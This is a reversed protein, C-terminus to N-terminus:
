SSWDPTTWVPASAPAVVCRLNRRGVLQSETSETSEAVFNSIRTGNPGRSAGQGVVAACININWCHVSFETHTHTQTYIYKSNCQRTHTHTDSLRRNHVPKVNKQRRALPSGSRLVFARRRPHFVREQFDGQLLQLRMLPQRQQEGHLGPRGLMESTCGGGWGM